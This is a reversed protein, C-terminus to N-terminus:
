NTSKRRGRSDTVHLSKSTSVEESTADNTIIAPKQLIKKKM